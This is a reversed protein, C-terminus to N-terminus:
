YAITISYAQAMYSYLEYNYYPANYGEYPLAVERLLNDNEDEIRLAAPDPTYDESAVEWYAYIFANGDADTKITYIDDLWNLTYANDFYMLNDGSVKITTNPKYNIRIRNTRDSIFSSYYGYKTINDIEDESFKVCNFTITHDSSVVANYAKIYESTTYISNDSNANKPVFWYEDWEENYEHRFGPHYEIYLDCWVNGKGVNPMAIPTDISWKSGDFTMIHRTNTLTDWDGEDNPCYEWYELLLEDGAVWATKGYKDGARTSDYSSPFDAVSINMYTTEPQPTQEIYENTCAASILALIAFIYKKM